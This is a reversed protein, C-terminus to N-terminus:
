AKDLEKILDNTWRKVDDTYPDKIKFYKIIEVIFNDFQDRFVANNWNDVKVAHQNLIKIIDEKM